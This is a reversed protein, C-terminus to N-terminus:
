MNDGYKIKTKKGKELPCKQRWFMETKKFLKKKVTHDCFVFM